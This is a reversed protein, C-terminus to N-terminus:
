SYVFLYIMIIVISICIIFTLILDVKAIVSVSSESNDDFIEEEREPGVGKLSKLAEQVSLNIIHAMCRVRKDEPEFLVDEDDLLNELEEVFKSM